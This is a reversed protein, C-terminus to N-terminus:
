QSIEMDFYSQGVITNDTVQVAISNTSLVSTGPVVIPTMETAHPAVSGVLVGNLYFAAEYEIRARITLSVGAVAGFTRRAWMRRRAPWTEHPYPWDLIGTTIDGFAAQVVSWGSDNFSPSSYDTNDTRDMTGSWRWGTAEYPVLVSGSGGGPNIVGRHAYAVTLRDGTKLVLDPDTISVLGGVVSWLTPPVNLGGWRVHVSGAVPLYALQLVLPGPGTALVYETNEFLTHEVPEGGVVVTGGDEIIVSGGGSVIIEGSTVTLQRQGLALSSLRRVSTELDRLRQELDTHRSARPTAV